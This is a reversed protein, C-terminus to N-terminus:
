RAKVIKRSRASKKAALAIELTRKGEEGDVLPKDKGELCSIFHKMEEIYMRNWDCGKYATHWKRDRALYLRVVGSPFDWVVTGDEGIIECKRHYDRRVFDIHLNSLINKLHKLLIDASDEVNVKLSSIKGAFCFVEKVDGLLWRMYDIEHSGDLIVGGGMEKKATYSKRYDQWPRWDPLYQGAEAKGWLVRGIENKEIIKKVLRLGPHFRFNYGVCLILGRKKAKLILDQVGALTHSMPKEIFVNVGADLVKEAIPVHTVPPTCVLAGDVKELVDDLQSTKIGYKEKIKEMKTKDTDYVFIERVKLSLLNRIHREGISGCGIILIRLSKKM